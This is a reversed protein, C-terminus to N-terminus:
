FLGPLVRKRPAPEPEPQECHGFSPTRRHAFWCFWVVGVGSLALYLLVVEMWTPM